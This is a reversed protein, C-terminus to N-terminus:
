NALGTEQHPEADDRAPKGHVLNGEADVTAWLGVPLYRDGGIVEILLLRLFRQDAEEDIWGQPTYGVEFVELQESRHGLKRAMESLLKALLRQREDRIIKSFREHRIGAEQTNLDPRVIEDDRRSQVNELHQFLDRWATMVSAHKAFEIEILNLAGVHEPVMPTRRTRMLTRFVDMQRVRYERRAEITRAVTVAAIPGVVITVLTIVEM